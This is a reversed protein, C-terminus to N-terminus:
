KMVTRKCCKEYFIKFRSTAGFDRAEAGIRSPHFAQEGSPQALRAGAGAEDGRLWVTSPPTQTIENM